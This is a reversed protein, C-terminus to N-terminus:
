VISDFVEFSDINEIVNNDTAYQDSQFHEECDLNNPYDPYYQFGNEKMYEINDVKFENPVGRLYPSVWTGDNRLYGDVVQYEYM